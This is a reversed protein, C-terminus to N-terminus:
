LAARRGRRNESRVAQSALREEDEEIVEVGSEEGLGVEGDVRHPSDARAHEDNAQDIRIVEQAVIWDCVLGVIFGGAFGAALAMLARTLVVDTPISSALGVAISVAFSAFATCAGAAQPIPIRPTTRMAPPM